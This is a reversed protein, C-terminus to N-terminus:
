LSTHKVPKPVSQDVWILDDLNFGLQTAQAVFAMKITEPLDPTRALLWLYDRTHGTVFAYSYDPALEFIVYSAYFPGFFSVKLHGVTPDDVWTASGEARKYTGDETSLGENIVSITGNSDIGYTATVGELGKEFRNDLRAIEFWQGTYRNVDFNSVPAIGDPLGTCGVLLSIFGILILHPM